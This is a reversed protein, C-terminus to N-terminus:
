NQYEFEYGFDLPNLFTTFLGAVPDYTLDVSTVGSSYNQPIESIVDGDMQFYVPFTGSLGFDSAFFISTTGDVLSIVGTRENRNTDRINGSVDTGVIDPDHVVVKQVVSAPFGDTNIASYTIDYVGVEDFDISGTITVELDSGAETATAEPTYSGGLPVVVEPVFDFTAYNTVESLGESDNDSTCSVLLLPILFLFIYFSLKKMKM